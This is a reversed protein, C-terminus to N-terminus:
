GYGGESRRVLISSQGITIFANVALRVLDGGGALFTIGGPTDAVYTRGREEM